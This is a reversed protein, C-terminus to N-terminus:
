IYDLVLNGSNIVGGTTQIDRQLDTESKEVKEQYETKKEKIQEAWDGIKTSLTQYNTQIETLQLTDTPKITQNHKRLMANMSEIEVKDTEIQPLRQTLFFNILNSKRPKKKTSSSSQISQM